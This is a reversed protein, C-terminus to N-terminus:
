AELQEHLCLVTCGCNQSPKTTEEVCEWHSVRWEEGLCTVSQLFAPTEVSAQIHFNTTVLVPSWWVNKLQPQLFLGHTLWM